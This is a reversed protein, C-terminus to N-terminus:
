AHKVEAATPDGRRLFFHATLLCLGTAALLGSKALLTSHLSYYFHGVFGLLSLVGFAMLIRNGAAFGLLLILLASGLGPANM